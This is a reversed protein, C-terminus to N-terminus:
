IHHCNVWRQGGAGGGGGEEGYTQGHGSVNGVIPLHRGGPQGSQGGESRVAMDRRDQGAM